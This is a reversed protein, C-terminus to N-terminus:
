CFESGPEASAFSPSALSQNKSVKKLFNAAGHQKYASLDNTASPKECGPRIGRLIKAEAESKLM